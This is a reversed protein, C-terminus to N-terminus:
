AGGLTPSLVRTVCVPASQSRGAKTETMPRHQLAAPAARARNTTRVKYWVHMAKNLLAPSYKPPSFIVHPHAPAGHGRVGM